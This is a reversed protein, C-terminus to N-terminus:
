WLWKRQRAAHASRCFGRRAFITLLAFSSAFLLRRRLRRRLRHRCLRRRLRRRRLRRHLRRENTRENAVSFRSDSFNFYQFMSFKFCYDSLIM